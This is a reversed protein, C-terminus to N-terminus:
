EVAITRPTGLPAMTEFKKDRIGEHCKLCTLTMDQYAVMVGDMNRKKAKEQMREAARQFTTIMLEYEKGKYANLFAVTKAIQALDEATSELKPFDNLAIHQLVAQTGKLKADMLEAKTVFRYKERPDKRQISETKSQEKKDKEKDLKSGMSLGGVTLVGVLIFGYSWSRPM